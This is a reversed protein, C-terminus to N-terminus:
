EDAHERLWEWLAAAHWGDIADYPVRVVLGKIKRERTMGVAKMVDATLAGESQVLEAVDSLMYHPVNGLEEWLESNPEDLLILYVSM